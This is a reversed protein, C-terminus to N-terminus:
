QMQKKIRATAIKEEGLYYTISCYNNDMLQVVITEYNLCKDKGKSIKELFTATNNELKMFKWKGGCPFSPYNVKCSPGKCILELPWTPQSLANPQEGEGTWKGQLWSVKQASVSICLMVLLSFIMLRKM